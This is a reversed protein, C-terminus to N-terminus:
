VDPTVRTWGVAWRSQHSKNHRCPMCVARLEFGPNHNHHHNYLVRGVGAPLTAGAGHEARARPRVEINSSTRRPTFRKEDLAIAWKAPGRAEPLYHTPNGREGSDHISRLRSGVTCPHDLRRRAHHSIANDARTEGRAQAHKGQGRGESRKNRDCVDYRRACFGRWRRTYAAVVMVLIIIMVMSCGQIHAGAM